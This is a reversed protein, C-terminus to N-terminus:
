NLCSKIFKRIKNLCWLVYVFFDIVISNKLSMCLVFFKIKPLNKCLVYKINIIKNDLSKKKTYLIKNRLSFFNCNAM